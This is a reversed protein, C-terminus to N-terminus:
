MLSNLPESLKMLKSVTSFCSFLWFDRWGAYGLSVGCVGTFLLGRKSSVSAGFGLGGRIITICRTYFASGISFIM